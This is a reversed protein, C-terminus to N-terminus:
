SKQDNTDHKDNQEIQKKLSDRENCVATYASQLLSYQQKLEQIQNIMNTLQPELTALEMRIRTIEPIM